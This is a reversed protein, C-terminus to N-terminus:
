EKDVKFVYINDRELFTYIHELNFDTKGMTALLKEKTMFHDWSHGARDPDMDIIVLPAGPKLAPIVNKMWQVPKSFDHFARMMIVMDLNGAPFLPNDEKGLVTKINYIDEEICRERINELVGEKIDNAYIKGSSGVRKALHFTFYGNGAGAEGIIMGAKIDLSDLIREPEQWSDRNANQAGFSCFLFFIAILINIVLFPRM